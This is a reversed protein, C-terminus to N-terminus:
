SAVLHVNGADPELGRAVAVPLRTALEKILAFGRFCGHPDCSLVQRAALFLNAVFETLGCREELKRIQERPHRALDNVLLSRLTGLDQCFRQRRAIVVDKRLKSRRGDIGRDNIEDVRKQRLIALAAGGCSLGLRHDPPTLTASRLANVCVSSGSARRRNADATSRRASRRSSSSWTSLTSTEIGSESDTAGRCCFRSAAERFSAGLRPLGLPRSPAARHLWIPGLWSLRRTRLQARCTRTQRM